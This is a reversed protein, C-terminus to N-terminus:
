GCCGPTPNPGCGGTFKPANGKSFSFFSSFMQITKSSGCFPCNLKLGKEKEKITAKIDFNMECDQCLYEYIPM